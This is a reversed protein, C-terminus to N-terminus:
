QCRTKVLICHHILSILATMRHMAENSLFVDLVKSIIVCTERTFLLMPFTKLMSQVFLVSHFGINQLVVFMHRSILNHKILFLMKFVSVYQLNTFKRSFEIKAFLILLCIQSKLFERLKPM